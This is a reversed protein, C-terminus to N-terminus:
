ELGLLHTIKYIGENMQQRLLPDLLDKLILKDPYYREICSKLEHYLTDTLFVSPLIARLETHTLPLRLRLCAPGGGNKMSQNLSIYLVQDIPFRSDEVLTDLLAKANKNKQVEVPAILTWTDNVSVIQSNFIYCNVAEKVSLFDRSVKVIQLPLKKLVHDTNVYADEHVLFFDRHGTAIVDNHFVGEDIAEPNQQALVTKKPDLRHERIIAEQAQKSQRAPFIKSGHVGASRGWVFFNLGESDVCFRTHNAAGEDFTDYCPFLPPHVVFHHADHFIRKLLKCTNPVEISRHLNTLLNAPTIHVKGDNSDSSATVTASNAAWMSSSSSCQLLLQPAVKYVEELIEQESGSFGLKKLTSIDPRPHPPLVLQPVGLLFLLKMKELGQLAAQKPRSVLGRSKLSAINGFSLGGFTHTPGVLTDLNAEIIQEM